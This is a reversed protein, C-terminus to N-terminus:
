HKERSPLYTAGFVDGEKIGKPVPRENHSMIEGNEYEAKIINLIGKGAAVKLPAISQIVSPNHNRRGEEPLSEWIFVKRGKFFTFAGPYPKSVARVLADIDWADHTWDIEGDSPQRGPFVTADSPDQPKRTALGELILPHCESVLAAAEPIMKKFLSMATERADIVVAKQAVIDGVDPEKVMRHLTVGTVKERNIIVWNVPCRGRYRPLLSGHMNFAGLQPLYLIEEPLINRYYFSYIIDPAMEKIRELLRDNSMDEDFALPLAHERALEAVSKFWINENLSDRHTIVGAIEGKSALLAELCAYGISHYAFVVTRVM